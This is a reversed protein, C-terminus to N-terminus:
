NLTPACLIAQKWCRVAPKSSSHEEEDPKRGRKADLDMREIRKEAVVLDSVIMEEETKWFDPESAPELGAATFNRIV